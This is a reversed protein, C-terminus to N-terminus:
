EGHSVANARLDAIIERQRDLPLTELNDLFIDSLLEEAKAIEQPTPISISQALTALNGGTGKRM